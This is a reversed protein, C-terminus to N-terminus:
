PDKVKGVHLCVHFCVFELFMIMSRVDEHSSVQSEIYKREKESIRPHSSPSSYGVVIWLAFWSIGVLGLM